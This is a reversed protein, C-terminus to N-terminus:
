DDETLIYPLKEDKPIPEAWKWEGSATEFPYANFFNYDIVIAPYWKSNEYNRVRCLIGNPYKEKFNGEYWEKKIEYDDRLIDEKRPIVHVGADRYYIVGDKGVYLWEKTGKVRFDRGSRVADLINMKFGRQIYEDIM